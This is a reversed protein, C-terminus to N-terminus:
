KFRTEMQKNEEIPNEYGRDNKKLSGFNELNKDKLYNKIIKNRKLSINIGTMEPKKIEM